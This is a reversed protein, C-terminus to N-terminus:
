SLVCADEPFYKLFDGGNIVRRLIGVIEIRLLEPFPEFLLSTEVTATSRVLACVEEAPTDTSNSGGVGVDGIDECATFPLALWLTVFSKM